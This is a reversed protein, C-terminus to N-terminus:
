LVISSWEHWFTTDTDYVWTKGATPFSFVCFTRGELSYVYSVADSVSEYTSIQYNISPPSITTFGHGNSKVITNKDSLWHLVGEIESVTTVSACGIDLIAGPVREFPFDPNGSNYYIEVTTEGFLWINQKTSGIGVLGDPAAEATAFDTADWSMGDYLASVQIKGTGYVTVIFYGDFFICDTARPFGDDTIDSLVAGVVIHGATTGDVILLQAGNCAM